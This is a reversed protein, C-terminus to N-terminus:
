RVRVRAVHRTSYRMERAFDQTLAPLRAQAAGWGIANLRLLPPMLRTAYEWLSQRLRRWHSHALSDGNGKGRTPSTEHVLLRVLMSARMAARCRCGRGKTIQQAFVANAGSKRLTVKGLFGSDAGCRHAGKLAAGPSCGILYRNRQDGFCQIEVGAIASCQFRCTKRFTSPEFM